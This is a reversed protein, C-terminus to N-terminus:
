SNCPVTQSRQGDAAVKPPRPELWFWATFQDGTLNIVCDSPPIRFGMGRAIYGLWRQADAVDHCDDNRGRKFKLEIFDPTRLFRCTVEEFKAAEAWGRLDTHWQDQVIEARERIPKRRASTNRTFRMM